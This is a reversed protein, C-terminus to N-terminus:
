AAGGGFVPYLVCQMDHAVPEIKDGAHYAWVRRQEKVKDAIADARAKMLEIKEKMDSTHALANSFSNAVTFLEMSHADRLREFEREDIM